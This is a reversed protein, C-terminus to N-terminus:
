TVHWAAGSAKLVYRPQRLIPWALLASNIANRRKQLSCGEGSSLLRVPPLASLREATARPSRNFGALGILSWAASAELGVWVKNKRSGPLQRLITAEGAQKFITGAAAAAVGWAAAPLGCGCRMTHRRRQM